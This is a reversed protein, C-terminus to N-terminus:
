SLFYKDILWYEGWVIGTSLAFLIGLKLEAILDEWYEDNIWSWLDPKFWFKVADFFGGWNTFLIKGIILYLPINITGLVVYWTIRDM